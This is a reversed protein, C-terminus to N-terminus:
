EVAGFQSGPLPRQPAIDYDLSLLSHRRRLEAVLEVLDLRREDQLIGREVLARFVEASEALNDRERRAGDLRARAERVRKDSAGGDRKDRETIWHGGVGVAIAALVSLALLIWSARLARFGQATFLTNM